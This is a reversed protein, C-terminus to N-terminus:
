LSYLQENIVCEDPMENNDVRIDQFWRLEENLQCLNLQKEIADGPSLFHPSALATFATYSTIVILRIDLDPEFSWLYIQLQLTDKNPTALASNTSLLLCWCFGM